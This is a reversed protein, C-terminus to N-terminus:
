QILTISWPGPYVYGLAENYKQWAEEQTMGEPLVTFNVGGGGGGQGQSTWIDFEIGQALLIERAAEVEADPIIEPPSIQLATVTLILPNGPNSQGQLFNLILCRGHDVTQFEAPVVWLVGDAETGPKLSYDTDYVVSGGIMPGETKFDSLYASYIWWDKETPKQYCVMLQTMSPTILAKPVLMEIGNVVVSPLNEVVTMPAVEATFDFTYTGVYGEPLYPPITGSPYPTAEPDFPFGAIYNNMSTGDLTIVWQLQIESEQVPENFGVSWSGQIVGPQGEVHNIEISGIGSGWIPNGDADNMYIQGLLGAADPVDPLGTITFGLGARLADVFVWDLTVTVEAQTQSAIPTSSTEPTEEPVFLAAIPIDMYFPWPGNIPDEIGTATLSNLTLNATHAGDPNTTPFRLLSCPLGSDTEIIQQSTPSAVPGEGFQFTADQVSGLPVGKDAPDSCVTVDTYNPTIQVSELQVSVGNLTVQYTQQMYITFGRYLPVNELDFHFQAVPAQTPDDAPVLPLDVSFSISEGVVDVQILHYFAAIIQQTDPDTAVMSGSTRAPTFGNFTLVPKGVMLGDQLADVTYALALRGEDAYVWDLTLSNSEITQSQGVPYVQHVETSLDEEPLFAPEASMGLDTVLGSEEVAQLGPDNSSFISRIFASVKQPGFGIFLASILLVTVLLIIFVPRQYLPRHNLSNKPMKGELTIKQWLSNVFEPSPDDVWTIERVKMEMEIMATKPM